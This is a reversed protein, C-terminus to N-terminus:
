DMYPPDDKLIDRIETVITQLSGVREQLEKRETILRTKFQIYEDALEQANPGWFAARFRPEGDRSVTITGAPGQFEESNQKEDMDYM